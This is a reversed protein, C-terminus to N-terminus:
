QKIMAIIKRGQKIYANFRQALECPLDDTPLTVFGLQRYFDVLHSLSFTYVSENIDCCQTVLERAIGQHRYNDSVHVGTLLLHLSPLPTIRAVAIIKHHEKAVWVTDHGSAKSKAKQQRYFKNVLPFAITDLQQINYTKINDGATLFTMAGSNM